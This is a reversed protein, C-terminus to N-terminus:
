AAELDSLDATLQAINFGEASAGKSNLMDRSSMYVIAMTGYKALFDPTIIVPAGWSIGIYNGGQRGCIPVFHGGVIPADTVTWPQGAEFQDEASQPLNFGFGVAEFVYCAAGIQMLDQPNLGLFAMIKHTNGTADKVGQTQWYQAVATMDSGQDTPNSGDALTQSPDYGTIASYMEITSSYTFPPVPNGGAANWAMLVHEPGAIACDGVPVDASDGDPGNGLMGWRTILSTHGYNPPILPLISQHDFYDALKLKVSEPRPPLLGLRYKM